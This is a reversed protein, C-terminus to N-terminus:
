RWTRAVRFGNTSVRDSPVNGYVAASRHAWEIHTYSGGHICGKDKDLPATLLEQSDDVVPSGTLSSRSSLSQCRESANGLVDFLGFDNPKLGGVSRARYGSNKFHWAYGGLLDESNGYFRSTTAGARCAYEWEAQTPLRYGILSLYNKPLPVGGKIKDIPPYCMQDEPIGEKESLWRCYMAADFWNVGIIPGDADPSHKSLFKHTMIGPYRQRVDSLFRCFQEVTVETAGIAYSRPIRRRHLTESSHRGPEKLLSGMLFEKPEPIVVMTQAQGNVYWQPEAKDKEKALKERITELRGAIKQKDNAWQPNFEQVTREHKWQRLLWEAAAHLGPDPDDRYWKLLRPLLAERLEDPMQKATYQGLALILARRASVDVEEALRKVLLRPDVGRAALDRVLYSRVDPTPTHRLLPWVVEEEGLDHDREALRLLGAAANAQRRALAVCVVEAIVPRHWVSATVL